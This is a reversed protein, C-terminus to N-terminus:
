SPWSMLGNRAVKAMGCDSSADSFREAHRSALLHFWDPFWALTRFRATLLERCIKRQAAPRSRNEDRM